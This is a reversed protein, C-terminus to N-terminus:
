VPCLLVLSHYLSLVWVCNDWIAVDVMGDLWVGHKGNLADVTSVHSGDADVVVILSDTFLLFLFHNVHGIMGDAYDLPGIDHLLVPSRDFSSYLALAKVHEGQILVMVTLLIQGPDLVGVCWVYTTGVALSLNYTIRDDAVNLIFVRPYRYNFTIVCLEGLQPGTAIPTCASTGWLGNVTLNQNVTVTGTDSVTLISIKEMAPVYVLGAHDVRPSGLLFNFSVHDKYRLEPMSYVCLNNYQYGNYVVLLWERSVCLGM